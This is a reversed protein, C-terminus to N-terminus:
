CCERRFWDSQRFETRSTQGTGAFVHADAFYIYCVEAKQYWRYMSNIAESLEASSRQDICCSDIWIWELKAIERAVRCANIIKSYGAGDTKRNKRFDKYSVESDSWRHSLIVYPPVEDGLFEKFNLGHANLLRM